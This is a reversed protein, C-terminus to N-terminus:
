GECRPYFTHSSGILRQFLEAESWEKDFTWGLRERQRERVCVTLGSMGESAHESIVWGGVCCYGGDM